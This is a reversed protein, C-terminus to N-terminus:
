QRVFAPPVYEEKPGDVWLGRDNLLSARRLAHEGFRRNIEDVSRELARMRERRPSDFLSIQEQGNACCLLGVRVGLSRLPRIWGYSGRFLAMAAAYIEGDLDTPKSLRTQREFSFLEVDRVWIQVERGKLGQERLRAGVTEALMMMTWQADDDTEIDRATTTSNGVTKVAESDEARAVPSRDWGNAFLHLMEGAKGLAGCLVERDCLALDGITRLNRARLRRVTAPGVYLLEGAPLPWVKQRYNEPTIVTTADPKQLDSGLKAFIKNDAVGVSATIGIEERARRRIEDAVRRGDEGTVDLWAEDIGFSEIRDTYQRYIRRMYEAFRRYKRMDPPVVVLAPCKQKAQWIAEGTKVGYKKAHQNKTLVIGHRAEPDGCVAVPLDRLEPRYLCEVSAYFANLDSHLITRM